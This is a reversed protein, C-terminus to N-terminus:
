FLIRSNVFNLKKRYRHEQLWPAEGDELHGGPLINLAVAEKEEAERETFLFSSLKVLPFKTQM